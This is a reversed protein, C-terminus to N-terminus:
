SLSLHRARTFATIFRQTGYFAPLKKVLQSGTLKGLLVRGMSYTLLYTPLQIPGRLTWLNDVPWSNRSHKEIDICIFSFTINDKHIHVVRCIHTPPIGHLRANRYEEEASSIGTFTGWVENFLCSSAISLRVPCRGPPAPCLANDNLCQGTLKRV